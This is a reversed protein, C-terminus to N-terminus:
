CTQFTANSLCVARFRTALGVSGAVCHFSDCVLSFPFCSASARGISDISAISGILDISVSDDCDRLPDGNLSLSGLSLFLLILHTHTRLSACSRRLTVTARYPRQTRMERLREKSAIRMNYIDIDRSASIATDLRLILRM